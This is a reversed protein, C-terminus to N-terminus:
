TTAAGPAKDSEHSEALKTSVEPTAQTDTWPKRLEQLKNFLMETEAKKPSDLVQHITKTASVLIGAASDIYVVQSTQEPLAFFRIEIDTGDAVVAVHREMLARINNHSHCCLFNYFSRYEQALGSRSFRKKVSLQSYGDKELETLRSECDALASDLNEYESIEKLYPNATTKAESLVRLWESLHAADMHYGYKKEEVLNAFDVFAELQSRLLIPIGIPAECTIAVQIAHSLELISGYLSTLILHWRHTKVPRLVGAFDIAAGTCHKFFGYLRRAAELEQHQQIDSESMVTNVETIEPLVWPYGFPFSVPRKFLGTEM